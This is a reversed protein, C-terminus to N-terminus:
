RLTGSLEWFLSYLMHNKDIEIHKKNFRVRCDHIECVKYSQYQVYWNYSCLLGLLKKMPWSVEIENRYLHEKIMSSLWRSELSVRLIPFLGHELLPNIMYKCFWCCIYIHYHFNANTIHMQKPRYSWLCVIRFYLLFCCSVTYQNTFRM